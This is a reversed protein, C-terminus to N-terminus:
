KPQGGGVQSSVYGSFRVCVGDAALVGASGAVNCPTVYETKKSKDTHGHQSPLEAAQATIAAVVTAFVAFTVGRQIIMLNGGIAAHSVIASNYGGSHGYVGYQAAIPCAALTM